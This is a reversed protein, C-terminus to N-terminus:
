GRDLPTRLRYFRGPHTFRAYTIVRGQRWTRREIMLVADQPAIDLLEATRPDANAASLVHEGDSWPVHDLLWANPGIEAFDVKEAEPVTDLNIWREEFQYPVGNARHLCTLHLARTRTGAELKDRVAAAPRGLDRDLLAYGYQCGMAAVEQDVRPIELLVNRGGPRAVRTGSRRRREVVGEESLERLARHATMRSCGFEHALAEEGPIPDGPRLDGAQIRALIDGKIRRFVPTRPRTKAAAASM